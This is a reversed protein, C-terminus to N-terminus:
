EGLQEVLEAWQEENKSLTESLDDLEKQKGIMDEVSLSTDLFDNQLKSKREELRAIKSEIKKIDKRLQYVDVDAQVSSEEQSINKAHLRDNKLQEKYDLYDTYNGNFDKINGHGDFVFMHDVIKDAMYRDHTVLVLCGQYHVLYQELANLTHIDLDNTPEDLILFNPNRMLVTLLYLRRREGGSLKQFRTRQQSRPFMFRELLQEATLKGGGELPIYEAIDRIIELVTKDEDAHLGQQDYYGFTTTEGVVVKGTTPALEGIMTRLFTSKGAGNAGVLALREKKKFKYDFPKFVQHDGFTVSANHLELIKSGARATKIVFEVDGEQYVKKAEQKLDHFQKIRSKSKTTRAKPSRRIWELEKRLLKQNKNQQAERNLELDTKQELYKTYNGPYKYLLGGDLEMIQDCVNELFYRDHSVMLITHRPDSFYGELWEIAEIDLHNTPEDLIMLDPAEAIMRVIALRKQQGGSLQGLKRDEFDIQFRSFLSELEAGVNWAELDDMSVGLTEIARQDDDSLAKQYSGYARIRESDASLVYEMPSLTEPMQPQQPLYHVRIGQHYIIRGAHGDSPIAGALIQLFTSKGEGNRAILATKEGQNILLNLDSFLTRDGFSKSIHEATLYNM